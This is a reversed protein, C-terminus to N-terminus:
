APPPPPSATPSSTPPCRSPPSTCAATGRQSAAYGALMTAVLSKGVGPRAGVVTLHGPRLGGGSLMEDLDHWGTPVADAIPTAWRSTARDLHASWLERGSVTAVTGLARDVEARALEALDAVDRDGNAAQVIRTAAEVLGAIHVSLRTLVNAHWGASQPVAGCTVVEALADKARPLDAALTRTIGAADFPVGGGHMVTFAEFLRRHPGHQFDDVTLPSDELIRGASHWCAGLWMLEAHFDAPAQDAWRDANLWSAPLPIFKRDPSFEFRQLGLLIDAPDAGRKIAARWAQEAKRKAEKRPYADYFDAFLDTEDSEDSLLEEGRRGKEGEGLPSDAHARVSDSVSPESLVADACSPLPYRDGSPRNIKQHTSFKTVYLFPKGDVTYRDIQGGAHLRMLAGHVRVSAESFSEDLPFLAATVLPEVDRGVGNDDVYSWLGIYILRDHWDLRAIDESTWFEPRISRIRM